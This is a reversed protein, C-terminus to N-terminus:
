FDSVVDNEMPSRGMMDLPKNNNNSNLISSSIIEMSEVRQKKGQQSSSGTCDKDKEEVKDHPTKLIV